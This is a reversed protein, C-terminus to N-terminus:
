LNLGEIVERGNASHLNRHMETDTSDSLFHISGDAFLLHAGGSHYSRPAFYGTWHTVIDPTHSNPPLYGNTLSNIAGTFAWSMGRGRIAPSSGGRWNTFTNWFANVDPNAIMGASNVYATWPGGTAEMGPKSGLSTGVGSSGNLTLTYPRRPLEGAEMTQDPGESRVTESMMATNSLGDLVHNFRVGYPEFFLGDTKWRFDYNQDRNSGFSAMYNVGGYTFNEGGVSVITQSQAPDSPCLYTPIVKSFAEANSPHPSKGSWGGTFAPVDFHLQADLGSQEIFPLIRAQVSFDEDRRGAPPLMKYASEYNHLALGIQRFNNGCSMRRAAERAAQVAPLLLGVLIGIIAIVVLLEVLTFASRHYAHTQQNM